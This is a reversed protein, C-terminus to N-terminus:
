RKYLFFDFSVIVPLRKSNNVKIKNMDNKNNIM